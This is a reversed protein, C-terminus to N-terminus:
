VWLQNKSDWHMEFKEKAKVCDYIPKLFNELVVIVEDFEVNIKTNIRSRFALWQVRKEKSRIFGETFVTPNVALPTSRREFTSKVADFLIRGDFNFKKCISYIDYFDKMRSNVEALYIMAEFKEAIVSELSYAKIIPKDMDLLSPYEMQAASPIIVDGFGIDFQIVKKSNDLKAIVKVRVGEYDADEKIRQVEITSTDLIVADDTEIKCINIFVEKIKELTNEIQRALFDVDKTARAKEDLITYLLLGGKLVFSNSYKSISLRYLLREIFYLTLLYDFQKNERIALNKLKAKISDAKSM